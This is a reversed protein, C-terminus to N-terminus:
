RETSGFQEEAMKKLRTRDVKGNPTQPFEPLVIYHKPKPSMDDNDEDEKKSLFITEAYERLSDETLDVGSWPQVCACINHHLIPDSIPVVVVEKVGPHGMLKRELWGPYVVHGGYTIVDNERGMVYLQGSDDWYGCDEMNFWGDALFSKAPRRSAEDLLNFYGEVGM